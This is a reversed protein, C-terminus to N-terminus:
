QIDSTSAFRSIAQFLADDVLVINRHDILHANQVSYLPSSCSLPTKPLFSFEYQALGLDCYLYCLADIARDSLAFPACMGFQVQMPEHLCWSSPTCRRQGYCMPVILPSDFSGNDLAQPLHHYAEHLPLDYLASVHWEPVADGIGPVM